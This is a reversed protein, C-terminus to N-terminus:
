PVPKSKKADLESIIKKTLSFDFIKELAPTERVGLRRIGMDVYARQMKEDITGDLTMAPRGGDYDKAAFEESTRVNRALIPITAARNDRAFRLGKLTARTFKEVLLPDSKLLEDRLIISGQLEVFDEKIFSVLERLGAEEAAFTFPPILIAADVSGNSLAAFRTPTVGLSLITLDRTGDLGHKKLYELLLTAPGSGLGSVAVKKGKLALITRIEPRAYLWFMPRYFGSFVFRLPAGGVAAPLVGGSVGTFEVNGAILAQAAIPTSMLILRVELGEDRYYGKQDAVYHAVQALSRASVAM